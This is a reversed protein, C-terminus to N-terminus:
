AASWERRKEANEALGRDKSLTLVFTAGCGPGGSYAKLSGGMDAAAISSFHLGIGRGKQKTSFRGSFMRTLNEVAIGAGSDSVEIRAGESDARTRVEIQLAKAEPSLCADKANTLLNVLIQLARSHDVFVEVDEAFHEILVVGHRKLSNEVLTVASHALKSLSISEIMAPSNAIQRQSDLIEIMHEVGHGLKELEDAFQKREELLQTALTELYLPLQKGRSDETLFKGLNPGQERVLAAAKSLGAVRSAQMREGLMRVSVNASTMVNGINHLLGSAVEAMGARRSMGLLEATREQVLLELSDGRARDAIRGQHLFFWVMGLAFLAIALSIHAATATQRAARMDTRNWYRDNSVGSWLRWQGQDDPFNLPLCASYVLEPDPQANRWANESQTWTGRGLPTASYNTGMNVLVFDTSPLLGRLVHTLVVASVCGRLQGQRDFFPVSYVIGARDKEDPLDPNCRRHDCTVIERSCLAPYNLGEIKADTEFHTSFWDVHAQTVIQESEEDRDQLDAPHHSHRVSATAEMTPNRYRPSSEPAGAFPDHANGDRPVIHFESVDFNATFNNWIERITANTEQSPWHETASDTPGAPSCEERVGPLRAVTRLHEYLSRFATNIQHQAITSRDHCENQFSTLAHAQEWRLKREIQGSFYFWAVGLSILPLIVARLSVRPVPLKASRLAMM